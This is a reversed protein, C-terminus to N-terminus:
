NAGLSWYGGRNTLYFYDAWYGEASEYRAYFRDLDDAAKGQDGSEILTWDTGHENDEAVLKADPLGISDPLPTITSAM